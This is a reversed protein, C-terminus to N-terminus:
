KLKFLREVSIKSGGIKGNASLSSKAEKAWLCVFDNPANYESVFV